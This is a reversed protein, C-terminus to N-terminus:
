PSSKLKKSLRSVCLQRLALQVPHEMNSLHFLSAVRNEVLDQVEAATLGSTMVPASGLQLGSHQESPVADQQAAPTSEPLPDTSIKMEM